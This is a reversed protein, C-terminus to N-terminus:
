QYLYSIFFILDNPTIDISKDEPEDKAIRIPRESETGGLIVLANTVILLFLLTTRYRKM